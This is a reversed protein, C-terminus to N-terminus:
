KTLKLRRIMQGINMRMKMDGKEVRELEYLLKLRLDKVFKFSAKDKSLVDMRNELLNSLYGLEKKTLEFM